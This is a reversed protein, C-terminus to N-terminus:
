YFYHTLSKETHPTRPVRRSFVGGKIVEPLRTNTIGLNTGFTVLALQNVLASFSQWMFRRADTM